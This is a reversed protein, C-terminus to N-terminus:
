SGQTPPDQTTIRFTQQEYRTTAETNADRAVDAKCSNHYGIICAGTLPIAFIFIVRSRQHPRLFLQASTKMADNAAGIRTQDAIDRAINALVRRRAILSSHGNVNTIDRRSLSASHATGRLVTALM